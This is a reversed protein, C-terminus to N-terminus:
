RCIGREKLSVYGDGGIIISDLVSVGLLVGAKKMEKTLKIDSSSPTPDGSPHNHVLIIATVNSMLAARFVERPCVAAFNIGGLSILMRNIPKNKSDLCIIELRESAETALDSMFEVANEPCSIAGNAEREGKRDPPAEKLYM